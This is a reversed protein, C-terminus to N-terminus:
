FTKELVGKNKKTNEQKLDQNIEERAWRDAAPGSTPVLGGPLARGPPETV